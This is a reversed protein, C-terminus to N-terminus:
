AHTKRWITIIVAMLLYTHDFSGLLQPLKKRFFWFIEEVIFQSDPKSMFLRLFLFYSM